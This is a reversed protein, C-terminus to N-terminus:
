LLIQRMLKITRESLLVCFQYLKFVFILFCCEPTQCKLLLIINGKTSVQRHVMWYHTHTTPSSEWIPPASIVHIKIGGGYFGDCCVDGFLAKALLELPIKSKMECISSICVECKWCLLFVGWFNEPTLYYGSTLLTNLCLKLQVKTIFLGKNFHSNCYHVGVEKTSSCSEEKRWEM